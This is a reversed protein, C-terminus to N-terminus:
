RDKFGWCCDNDGMVCDKVKCQPTKRRVCKKCSGNAPVQKRKTTAM